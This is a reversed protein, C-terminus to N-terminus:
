TLIGQDLKHIETPNLADIVHEYHTVLLIGTGQERLKSIVEILYGVADPDLGSDPEDLLAYKPKLMLLQLLESRKKEGGSFGENLSRKAFKPDLRLLGLASQLDREFPLTHPREGTIAELSTRLFDDMPVGPVEPPTQLSLFLGHRARAFTPLSTLDVDDLVISGSTVEYLPNAMLANLLTSKGAGNHGTLIHLEGPEICLSVGKIIPTQERSVHLNTIILSM